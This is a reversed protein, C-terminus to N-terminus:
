TIDAWLVPYDNPALFVYKTRFQEVAAFSSQDPDGMTGLTGYMTAGLLFTAVAFESSGTVEFAGEVLDCDAVQGANLTDPCKPPKAPSYDLKTGDKNGYLRVDHKVATGKPGTPPTIIYHKGLTEAPLVTEEIHDCAPKGAPITICPVSAIVQVPKS